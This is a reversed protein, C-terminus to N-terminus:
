LLLTQHVGVQEVFYEDHSILILTGAYNRLAAELLAKSDLDLHNDPEDLLLIDPAKPGATVALLAVKLGEGGSLEGVRQLGKDGRLRMSGLRIRWETAGVGPHLRCLNDVASQSSDLLSFQQDLYLSSGNRRCRGARPSLEGNITKLLTSKGCGNAGHVRWREGGSISLSVPPHQVWQLELAELSLRRGTRLGEETISLRQPRLQERKDELETLQERIRQSRQAQRAKARAQSREANNTKADLLLKSQSGSRRLRMGQRRRAAARAEDAKANQKMKRLQKESAVIDQELSAIEADRLARYHDYGGGYRHLRLDRLEFLTNVNTLLTRDHSAVLAGGSHSHLKELLWARGAADLHNSPEDLLLFHDQRLFAACLALRVQQGGSLQDVPVGMPIELGAEALQAQWEAPRHWHDAVRDLDRPMARGQEIRSFADFLPGVRLADAIRLGQIDPRQALRCHPRDWHIDGGAPSRDGNLLELLVSKGCGNPGILGSVGAPLTATMGDFLPRDDFALSLNTFHCAVTM